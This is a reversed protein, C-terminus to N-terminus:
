EEPIPIVRGLPELDYGDLAAALSGTPAGRLVELLQQFLHRFYVAKPLVLDFCEWGLPLFGLGFEAAASRVGPACDARGQAVDAAAYRETLARGVVAADALALQRETLALSLFHQSGAGEQRMAWRVAPGILDSLEAAGKVSEGLLVGQERRGMRVLIWDRFGPFARVLGAHRRDAAAAPGWHIGCVNARRQALLALGLRTGTPALAVLASGQLRASLEAVAAALLPDDSGAVILRDTLVGGHTSELLWEDVLRRPFLWKGAAKTAPIAGEKVLAYIKKENLHLYEAVEHVTLFAPEDASPTDKNM